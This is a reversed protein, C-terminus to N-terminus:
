KEKNNHTTKFFYFILIEKYLLDKYLLHYFRVYNIIMICLHNEKKFRDLVFKMQNRFM